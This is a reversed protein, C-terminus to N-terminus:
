GHPMLGAPNEATASATEHAAAAGLQGRLAAIRALAAAKGSAQPQDALMDDVFRSRTRGSAARGSKRKSCWTILLTQRARTVGVYM